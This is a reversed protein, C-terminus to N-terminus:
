QSQLWEDLEPRNYLVRGDWRHSPVTKDKELRSLPVRLHEAAEARTLWPSAQTLEARVKEAVQDVLQELVDAPLELHLGTVGV